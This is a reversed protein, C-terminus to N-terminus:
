LLKSPLARVFIHTIPKKLNDKIWQIVLQTQHKPSDMVIVGKGIEVVIQSYSPSDAFQLYRLNPVDDLPYQVTLNALTGRYGGTYLGNSWVEHLEAHGYEPDTKPATKPFLVSDNSSIGDFFGTPFAPNTSIGRIVFDELVATGNYVNQVRQPFMVGDVSTYNYLLIDNSVKGFVENEEITRVIYPLNTTANFFITLNQGANHVTPLELGPYLELMSASTINSDKFKLLLTPSM